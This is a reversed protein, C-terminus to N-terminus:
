QPTEGALQQSPNVTISIKVSAGAPKDKLMKRALDQIGEALPHKAFDPHYGFLIQAATRTASITM